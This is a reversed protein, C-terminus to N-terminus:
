CEQQWSTSSLCLVDLHWSTEDVCVGGGLHGRLNEGGGRVQGVAHRSLRVGGKGRLVSGVAVTVAAAAVRVAKKPPGERRVQVHLRPPM